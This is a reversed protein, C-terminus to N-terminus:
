LSKKQCVVLMAQRLTLIIKIFNYYEKNGYYYKFFTIKFDNKKLLYSITYKDHWCTHTKNPKLIISFWKANPTTLIFYGDRKLHKKINKLFLGQNDVHEIVDGAIIVDFKRNFDYNEMNGLVVNKQNSRETDIGTLKGAHKELINWLNYASTQGVSGIDLVDKGKIYKIIIEERIM